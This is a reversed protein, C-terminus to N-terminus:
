LSLSGTRAWNRGRQRLAMEIHGGYVATMFALFLLLLCFQFVPKWDWLIIMEWYPGRNPKPRRRPDYVDLRKREWKIERYVNQAGRYWTPLPTHAEITDACSQYTIRCLIAISSTVSLVAKRCARKRRTQKSLKAESPYRLGHVYASGWCPPLIRVSLNSVVKARLSFRFPSPLFDILNGPGSCWGGCRILLSNLLSSTLRVSM